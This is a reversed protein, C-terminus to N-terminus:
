ELKQCELLATEYDIPKKCNWSDKPKVTKDSYDLEQLVAFCCMAKASWVGDPLSKMYNPAIENDELCKSKDLLSDLDDRMDDYGGCEGHGAFTSTLNDLVDKKFKSTTCGVLVLMLVLMLYRM